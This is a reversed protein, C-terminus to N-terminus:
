NALRKKLRKKKTIFKAFESDEEFIETLVRGDIDNPIPLGFIHLITPAIDYIRVNDIEIGEKIGPGKAVFIGQLKHTGARHKLDFVWTKDTDVPTAIEYGLTPLLILDPAIDLYKGEYIEEKKYAKKVLREGTIPNAIDEIKNVLEDRLKEYKKGRYKPNIYIPGEPLPIVDSKNWDVANELSYMSVIDDPPPFFRDLIRMSTDKPITKKVIEVLKLKKVINFIRERSLGIFSLFKTIKSQNFVLYGEEKMWTSINFVAKTETFGHDSMLMLITNEDTSKELLENINRDILEWFDQIVNEFPARKNIMDKWFVHQVSDIHFITVHFFDPHNEKILWQAVEFRQEIIKKTAKIGKEKDLDFFFEPDIRYSFKSELKEALEPPYTYNKQKPAGWSIMFNNIRKPPYTGPMDLIGSTYGGKGLIDWVDYSKFDTSNNSIFCKKEFNPYLFWFVGLKGPNKGSSYSKWAPFTIHPITSELNGFIGNKKLKKLTPLKEEWILRDIVEWTAGDLGIVIMKPYKM